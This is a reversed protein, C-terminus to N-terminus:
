FASYALKFAHSQELLDLQLYSAAASHAMESQNKNEEVEATEQHDSDESADSLKELKDFFGAMIIRMLGLGNKSFPTKNLFDEFLRSFMRDFYKLFRKPKIGSDEVMQIMQDTLASVPKFADTSEGPDTKSAHPEDPSPAVTVKSASAHQVLAISTKFEFEAEVNSITKLDAFKRTKKMLDDIKGAVFDKVMKFIAKIVKRIEKKEQDNLDGEIGIAIQRNVDLSMLNGQSEAYATDTHALSSYTTLSAEAQVQSSLTVKDGEATNITIGASQEHTVSAHNIQILEYLRKDQEPNPQSTSVQNSSNIMDMKLGGKKSILTLLDNSDKNM